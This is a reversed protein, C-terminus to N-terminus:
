NNQIQKKKKQFSFFVLLFLLAVTTCVYLSGDIPAPPPDPGDTTQAFSITNHLLVLVFALKANLNKKQTM